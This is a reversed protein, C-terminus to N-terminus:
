ESEGTLQLRIAQLLPKIVDTIQTRVAKAADAVATQETKASDLSARFGTADETCKVEALDALTQEYKSAVSQFDAVKTDLTTLAASLETTDVKDKLKDTLTALKAQVKNYAETRKTISTSVRTAHTAIKVQAAECKAKLRNTQTTTLKTAQAAKRETLREQLTKVKTEITTQTTSLVENSDSAEQALAPTALGAVLCASALLGLGLKFHKGAKM